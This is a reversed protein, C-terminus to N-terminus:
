KNRKLKWLHHIPTTPDMRIDNYQKWYRWNFKTNIYLTVGKITSAPMQIKIWSSFSMM